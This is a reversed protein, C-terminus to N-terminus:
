PLPILFIQGFVYYLAATLGLSLGGAWLLLFRLDRKAAFITQFAFLMLFTAIAYGIWPMLLVYLFVLGFVTLVRRAEISPATMTFRLRFRRSRLMLAASLALMFLAILGPTLGPSSLAGADGYYPMRISAILVYLSVVFIVLGAVFDAGAKHPAGGPAATEPESM